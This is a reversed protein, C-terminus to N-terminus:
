RDWYRPSRPDLPDAIPDLYGGVSRENRWTVPNSDTLVWDGKTLKARVYGAGLIVLIFPPYFAVNFYGALVSDYFATLSRFYLSLTAGAWYAVMGTWWLRAYWPRWLWDRLRLPDIVADLVKPKDDPPPQNDM